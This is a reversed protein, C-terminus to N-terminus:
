AKPLEVWFERGGEEMRIYGIHGNQLRMMERAIWLGIGTSTENATPETNITSYAEFLHNQEEPAIGEGHDIIHIRTTSPES